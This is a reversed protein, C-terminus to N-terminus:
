EGSRLEELQDEIRQLQGLLRERRTLLAGAEDSPDLGVGRASGECSPCACMQVVMGCCDSLASANVSYPVWYGQRAASVLGAHRLVKLHQSVAPSTMELSEAIQKVPLAGKDKLLELIRIRSPVSLAKLIEAMRHRHM